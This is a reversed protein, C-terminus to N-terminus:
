GADQNGLGSEQSSLDRPGNLGCVKMAGPGFTIVNKGCRKSELLAQDAVELLQEVSQGDWPYSAMGASITLTGPAQEGLKPFRHECVARQFRGAAARVDGPHRSNERRPPEADWFVVAFEDGGIRAVVDHKRVVSMMLRATERLIDDGAAHGFHDNYSKFDDIDYLMVTVRFREARARRLIDNAFREFYRRNMVGTLEDRETQHQLTSVRESLALWHGLWAAYAALQPKPLTPSTLFGFTQDAFTVPAADADDDRSDSWCLEHGAARQRILQLAADRVSAGDHLLQQILDTDGLRSSAAAAGPLPPPTSTKLAAPEPAAAEELPEPQTDTINLASTLDNATVPEVLYDDVGLRVARMAQPEQDADVILVIRCDPGLDRLAQVTSELSGNMSDIRGLITAVRRRSMEGLADLYNPVAIVDAAQGNLAAGAARDLMAAASAGEGVILTTRQEGDKMRIM